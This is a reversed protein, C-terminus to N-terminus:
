FFVDQCSQEKSCGFCTDSIIQLKVSMKKQKNLVIDTRHRHKWIIRPLSSAQQLLSHVNNELLYNFVTAPYSRNFTKTFFQGLLAVGVLISLFVCIKVFIRRIFMVHLYGERM